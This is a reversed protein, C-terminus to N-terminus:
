SLPIFNRVEKAIKKKLSITVVWTSNRQIASKLTGIGCVEGNKNLLVVQQGKIPLPLFEYPLKIEAEEGSLDLVFIALGPCVSV